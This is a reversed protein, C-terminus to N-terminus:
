ELKELNMVEVFASQEDIKKKTNTKKPAMKMNLITFIKVYM